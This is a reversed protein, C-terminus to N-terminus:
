RRRRKSPWPLIGDLEKLRGDDDMDDVIDDSGESDEEFWLLSLVQDWEPLLRTEELLYPTGRRTNDMWVDTNVEIPGDLNQGSRVKQAASGQPLSM